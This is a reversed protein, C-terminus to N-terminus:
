NMAWEARVLSMTYADVLGIAREIVVLAGLAFMGDEIVLEAAEGIWDDVEEVSPAEEPNRRLSRATALVVDCLTGERLGGAGHYTSPDLFPDPVVVRGPCVSSLTLSGSTWEIPARKEPSWVVAM